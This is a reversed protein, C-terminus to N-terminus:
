EEWPYSFSVPEGNLEVLDTLSLDFDNERDTQWEPIKFKVKDGPDLTGDMKEPNTLTSSFKLGESTDLTLYYCGRSNMIGTETVYKDNKLTGEIFREPQPESRKCGFMGLTTVAILAYTAIKQYLTM